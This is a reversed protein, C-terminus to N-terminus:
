NRLSRAITPTFKIPFKKRLLNSGAPEADTVETRPSARLLSVFSALSFRSDRPRASAITPLASRIAPALGAALQLMENQGLGSVVFGFYDNSEFGAVNMGDLQAKYLNIGDAADAVLLRTGPLSQGDRKTLIVSLIAGHGSAIFHVYRRPSGHVQCQHAELVQFGPLRQEVVALLGAYAPGLRERLQDPPRGEDRYNHGQIACSLHDSVGLALVGAVM